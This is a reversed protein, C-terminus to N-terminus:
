TATDARRLSQCPPCLGWFTVEAEDVEFGTAFLGKQAFEAALPLGVYGLGIVGVRAEGTEIRKIIDDKIM